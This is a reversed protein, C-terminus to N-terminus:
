FTEPPCTQRVISIRPGPGGSASPDPARFFTTIRRDMTM